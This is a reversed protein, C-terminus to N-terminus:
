RVRGRTRVTEAHDDGVVGGHLGAGEEGHGRLLNEARLVDGHLVADGREIQDIGGANEKRQLFVDKGILVVESADEAVVRDHAGHADRLDRRDHAHAHGAAGIQRHHRSWTRIVSPLPSNRAPGASTCAAMPWFYEASSSPPAVM